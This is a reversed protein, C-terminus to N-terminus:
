VCYSSEVLSVKEPGVLEDPFKREYSFDKTESLYTMIYQKIRNKGDVRTRIYVTMEFQESGDLLLRIMKPTFLESHPLFYEGSISYRKSM